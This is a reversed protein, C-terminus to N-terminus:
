DLRYVGLYPGTHSVTYVHNERVKYTTTEALGAHPNIVILCRGGHGEGLLVIPKKHEEQNVINCQGPNSVGFRSVESNGLSGNVPKDGDFYGSYSKGNISYSFVPFRLSQDIRDKIQSLLWAGVFGGNHGPAVGDGWSGKGVEAKPQMPDNPDYQVRKGGFPEWLNKWDAAGGMQALGFGNINTEYPANDNWSVYYDGVLLSSFTEYKLLEFSGEFRALRILDGNALPLRQWTAHGEFYSDVGELGTWGFTLVKRDPMAIYQKEMTAIHDYIRKGNFLRGVGDLYGGILRHRYEYAKNAYYLSPGDKISPKRAQEPSSLLERKEDATQVWGFETGYGYLHAFYDSVITTDNPSTVGDREVQLEYIHRYIREVTDFPVGNECIESCIIAGKRGCGEYLKYAEQEPSGFYVVQFRGGSLTRNEDGSNKIEIRMVGSSSISYSVGIGEPLASSYGKHLSIIDGPECDLGAQEVIVTEGSKITGEYPLEVTGKAYARMTLWTKEYPTVGNNVDAYAAQLDTGQAVLQAAPIGAMRKTVGFRKGEPLSLKNTTFQYQPFWAVKQIDAPPTLESSPNQKAKLDLLEFVVYEGRAVYDHGHQTNGM